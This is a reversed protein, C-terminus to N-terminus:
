RFNNTKIRRKAGDKKSLDKKVSDNELKMIYLFLDLKHTDQNDLEEPTWGFKECLLYDAYIEPAGRKPNAFFKFM